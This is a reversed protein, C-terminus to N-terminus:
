SHIIEWVLQAVQALEDVDIFEGLSHSYHFGMGLVVSPIGGHNLIHADSGINMRAVQPSIGLTQCAAKAVAIVEHDPPVEFRSYKHIPVFHVKGRPFHEQIEHSVEEMQTLLNELTEDNHSRAEGRVTATPAVINLADGGKIMGINVTTEPSLRGSPLSACLDLAMEIASVGAEPAIGAHSRVGELEFLLGKQTPGAYFIDGVSGEGDLVFGMSARCQHIDFAKLGLLGVEEQTSFLLELPHNQRDGAEQIRRVVELITAIGSKDDAGLVTKGTSRIVRRGEVEDEVPQIGECPPVSDMHASLLITPKQSNGPVRVFLNGAEDVRTDEVGWATLREQIFGRIRDERGSPNDIPVLEKFCEVIRLM